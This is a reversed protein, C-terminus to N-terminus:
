PDKHAALALLAAAAADALVTPQAVCSCVLAATAANRLVPPMAALALGAGAANILPNADRVCVCVCVRM